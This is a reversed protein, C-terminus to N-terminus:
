KRDYGEDVLLGVTNRATRNALEDVRENLPHGAHGKVWKFTLGLYQETISLMRKWLDPNLAPKGDSKKWGRKKWSKAWGKSIGNITYQSDSHVIVKRKRHAEPIKELATIVALMEMRNNTTHKFGQSFERTEGDMILIVGYGGPGPNGIASGDTYIHIDDTSVGPSKKTTIPTDGKGHRNILVNIKGSIVLGQKIMDNLVPVFQALRDPEDVIDIVLPLDESLRLIKSTRIESNKGFGMIGRTVTAGALARKHAEEVIAEYLPKRGFRQSEGIYIRLLEMKTQM